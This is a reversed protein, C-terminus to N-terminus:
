KTLLDAFTLLSPCNLKSLSDTKTSSIFVNFMGLRHGFEMDSHSDGVMVSKSFNIAPFDAQAQIAMGTNPKRNVPNNHALDPCFYIKKIAAPNHLEALM